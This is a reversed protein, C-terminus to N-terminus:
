RGVPAARGGRGAMVNAPPPMVPRRAAGQLYAGQPYAPQAPAAAAYSAARVGLASLGGIAVIFVPNVMANLLNDAMHLTLLVAVAAAPAAMPHAWWQPPVRGRLLLPPLLITATLTVLGALGNVAFTLLWLGDVVAEKRGTDANYVMWPPRGPNKPNWRGYGWLAKKLAHDVYVNEAEIRYELSQAREPGFVDTALQIAAEGSVQGTSRLVMYTPAVAILCYLPIATKTWKIAFLVTLGMLLFGIGAASKCLVTTVLMVPVIFIMPVGFLSRLAGTAMLWVGILSAATMWFGVALGHQMFVMPRYGGFRITQGFGHQHMGYVFRHLQPSMRIEILCLPVYIVGGIFIAVALDRFGEWDNFYVRGIYYPIGWLTLNELVASLGDWYGLGNTISTAFPVACWALVPLDFWHFRFTFLRPADFLMVGLLVSVTSITVKDLDPLINIKMGARPSLFLWAGLYAALVAHRPRLLAFLVLSFPVWGFMVLEKFGM